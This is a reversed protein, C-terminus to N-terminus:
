NTEVDFMDDSPTELEEEWVTMSNINDNQNYVDVIFGQETKILFVNGNEGAHVQIEERELDKQYGEHVIEFYNDEHLEQFKIWDEEPLSQILNNNRIFMLLEDLVTYDGAAFDEKLREIVADVLVQKDM